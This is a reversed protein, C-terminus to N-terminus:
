IYHYEYADHETNEYISEKGSDELTSPLPDDYIADTDSLPRFPIEDKSKKDKVARYATNEVVEFGDSSPRCTYIINTHLIATKKVKEKQM